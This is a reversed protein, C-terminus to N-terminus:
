KKKHNKNDSTSNETIQSRANSLANYLMPLMSRRTPSITSNFHLNSIRTLSKNNITETDDNSKTIQCIYISLMSRLMSLM